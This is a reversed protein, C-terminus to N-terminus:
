SCCSGFGLSPDERGPHLEAGDMTRRGARRVSIRLPTPRRSIALDPRVLARRSVDRRVRCDEARRSSSYCALIPLTLVLAQILVHDSGGGLFLFIQNAPDHAFPTAALAGAGLRRSRMELSRLSLLFTPASWSISRCTSNVLSFRLARRVDPQGASAEHHRRCLGGSRCLDGRRYAVEWVGAPRELRIGARPCGVLHHRHGFYQRSPRAAGVALVATGARYVRLAIFGFGLLVGLAYSRSLVFYEWFLFYSLLLLLKGFSRFPALRWILVWVGLAILLHAVQMFFPDATFRTIVWLLLHWLGPHGEYKLKAYLDLPTASAAALMFGPTRRAVHCPPVAQDHQLHRPSRVASRGRAAM